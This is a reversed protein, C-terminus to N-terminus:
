SWSAHLPKGEAYGAASQVGVIAKRAFEELSDAGAYTCSSRVGAIISDILDEVGPRSPDLFMRSTSIGEEFLAKRARDYASEESTRNRVARASAMGFSEKYLRGDAAQQLDGPSEYTGAFWSGIMVNSAGAALAMAVDRPHRVGGDAWVHKGFKKAEAACEMVASFQPRGVGTMMRTTCMAGPGVGVKIIDAGAEILDRVGEAAVINGAVVPVKPDLARVARIAALMSEQHGHATDVVLTDVGADLLQRTKGAVNGNVGVAAAIRLKGEADTAPTYLTARLAGKRTLVGALRGDADIAPAIKRNANDLTNFAERPDMDASILLLDKSMVESLQTFRDVGTLDHETVVGVPRGEGDVVVGAGHARKPLLSLADGVTQLPALVIPTDLVLHRTKVWSIVDTVVEIPIDQPIVVLGGRRAVTEAMRRGAIATMNAVVLPITTGTGDPASLDVALRSGVASRSPVMFVDDYTLDYPPQLDNLFRM